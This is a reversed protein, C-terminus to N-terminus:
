INSLSCTFLHLSRLFKKLSTYFHFSVQVVTHQIIYSPTTSISTSTGPWNIMKCGEVEDGGDDDTFDSDDSNVREEINHICSWQASNM